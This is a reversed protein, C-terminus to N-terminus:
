GNHGPPGFKCDPYPCGGGAKGFPSNFWFCLGRNSATKGWVSRAAGANDFGAELLAKRCEDPAALREGAFGLEV